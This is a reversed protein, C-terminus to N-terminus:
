FPFALDYKAKIVIKNQIDAFGYKGNQFYPVLSQKNTQAFSQAAICLALIIFIRYM